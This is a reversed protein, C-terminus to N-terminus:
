HRFPGGGSFFCTEAILQALEMISPTRLIAQLAASERANLECTTVFDDFTNQM